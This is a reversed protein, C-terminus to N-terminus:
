QDIPKMTAGFAGAGNSSTGVGRQVQINNLSSALDPVNVFFIGQSEPDNFPIGNITMNIRTPDSGRIGYAPIALEMEQMQM